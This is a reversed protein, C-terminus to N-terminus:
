ARIILTTANYASQEPAQGHALDIAKSPHTLRCLDEVVLVSGTRPM